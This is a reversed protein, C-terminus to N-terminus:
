DEKKNIEVFGNKKKDRRKNEKGKAKKQGYRLGILALMIGAGGMTMEQRFACIGETNSSDCAVVAYFIVLMAVFSVIQMWKNKATRRIPCFYLM